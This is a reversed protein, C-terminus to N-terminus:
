SVWRTFFGSGDVECSGNHTLMALLQAFFLISGVVGLWAGARVLHSMGLLFPLLLLIGTVFTIDGGYWLFPEAWMLGLAYSALAVCVWSAVPSAIRLRRSAIFHLWEIGLLIVALSGFLSGGIGVYRVHHAAGLGWAAGLGVASYQV